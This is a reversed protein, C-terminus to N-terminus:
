LRCSARRKAGIRTYSSGSNIASTSVQIANHRENESSAIMLPTITEIMVMRNKENGGTSSPPLNLM